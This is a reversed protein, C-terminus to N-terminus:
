KKGGTTKKKTPTVVVEVQGQKKAADFEKQGM